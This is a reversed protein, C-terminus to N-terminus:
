KKIRKVLWNPMVLSLYSVVFFVFAFIWAFYVFESYGPHDFVVILLTDGIFMLFFVILCIMSYSLLSLGVRAIKDEAKNTAKRCIIFIYIYIIYSYVVLSLTTYLRINLQGVYDEPPVGWWNWPLYIFIVMIAGIIIVPILGKKGKDTVNNGFIYLIIDAFIVMSYGFPLSFRYIEKYFGTIAAEGLGIALAIMAATFFTFVISLYLPPLVKRQRWKTFMKITMFIFLGCLIVYFILLPFVRIEFPTYSMIIYKSFKKKVM